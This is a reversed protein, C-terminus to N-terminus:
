SSEQCLEDIEQKLVTLGYELIKQFERIASLRDDAQITIYGVPIDEKTITATFDKM